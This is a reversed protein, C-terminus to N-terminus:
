ECNLTSSVVVADGLGQSTINQHVGIRHLEQTPGTYLAPRPPPSARGLSKADAVLEYRSAITLGGRCGGHWSNM